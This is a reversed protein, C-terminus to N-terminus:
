IEIVSAFTYHKGINWCPALRHRSASIKGWTESRSFVRRWETKLHTVEITLKYSSSSFCFLCIIENKGSQCKMWHMTTFRLYQLAYEKISHFNEGSLILYLYERKSHDTSLTLKQPVASVQPFGLSGSCAFPAPFHFTWIATEGLKMPLGHPAQKFIM